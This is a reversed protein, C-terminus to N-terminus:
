THVDWVAIEEKNTSISVIFKDTEPLRSILNFHVDKFISKGSDSSIVDGNNIEYYHNIPVLSLIPPNEAIRYAELIKKNMTNITMEGKKIKDYIYNYFCGYFQRGDYNLINSHTELFIRLTEVFESTNSINKYIYIDELLQNCNSGCVKDFIWSLDYMYPSNELSVDQIKFSHYPLEDLKRRNYSFYM